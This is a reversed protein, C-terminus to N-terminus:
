PAYPLSDTPTVTLQHEVAPLLPRSATIVNGQGDAMHLYVRYLNSSDPPEPLDFYAANPVSEYTEIEGVEYLYEDQLLTWELTYDELLAPPVVVRAEYQTQGHPKVSLRVDLWQRQTTDGTWAKKLAYYGLKKRNKVDTLGFWTLSGELRDRWCFAVGGLNHGQHPLIYRHWQDYYGQAKQLDSEEWVRGYGGLDSFDPDWYGKPGFESVLYPKHPSHRDMISDLRRINERYYSNVAIIDLSPAYRNFEEIALHVYRSHEEASMVPTGPDIRHIEQALEELMDLYARRVWPLYERTNHQKLIGWTENGIAWALIAPHGKLEKVRDLVEQKYAEVRAQDRFYDVKPDFWFGQIVKLDNEQAVNAINYDYMSSAYYRITNAGMAKIRGLDKDLTSRVLPAYGDRWDHGLNYAVGRIYFPEGDVRLEFDGNRKRLLRTGQAAVSDAVAIAVPSTPQQALYRGTPKPRLLPQALELERTFEALRESWGRGATAVAGLALGAPTTNSRLLKEWGPSPQLSDPSVGAWFLPQDSLSPYARVQSLLSGPGPGTVQWADVWKEGPFWTSDSAAAPKEWVWRFNDLQHTRFFYVLYQWAERYRRADVGTPAREPYSPALTIYMTQQRQALETGMRKLSADYCGQVIQEYADAQGSDAPVQLRFYPIFGRAMAQHGEPTLFIRTSDWVLDVEAIHIRTQLSPASLEESTLRARYAFGAYPHVVTREEIAALRMRPQFPIIFSAFIAGIIVVSLSGAIKKSRFGRYIIDHRFDSWMRRPKSLKGHMLLYYLRSITKRQATLVGIGLMLINTAALGAMFWSYPSWDRSLGYVIAAVGLGMVVLNPICIRWEDEVIDDKPTPIYPVKIRFFTYVLGTLYIWWTSLMLIGGWFHLGQEQRELTWKQVYLRNVYLFFLMPLTMQVLDWLDVLIPAKALVLALMPLFIDIASILGSLFYLPITLYHVMQRWTYGQMLKPFEHFLLEFSGRSWKLQQQYFSGLTSPVLGRSLNEPVYVSEWGAAHLRMATHMDESLGAAHGGISDLAARRFTCNAGIAQVTGYTNMSMMMPGYFHYTHEAAGKAILSDNQNGYAQVCQVFGVKEDEFYPVTKEIFDPRPKHDPDLVIAIDGKAHTRLAYNVNGAKAYTKDTGRYSHVVGLEQCVQKLYPDDAEDCLITTHPYRVAKMAKLTDIVMDYPEGACYTTLMDVRWEKTLPPPTPVSIGAYHYWEHLMRLLKFSITVALLVFLLPYGPETETWFWVSFVLVSIVGGFILLWLTRQEALTPSSIFLQDPIDKVPSLYPRKTAKERVSFLVQPKYRRFEIAFSSGLEAM